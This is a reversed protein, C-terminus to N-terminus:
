IQVLNAAFLNKLFLMVVSKDMNTAMLVSNDYAQRYILSLVGIVRWQLAAGAGTWVGNIRRIFKFDM